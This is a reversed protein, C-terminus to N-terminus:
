VNKRVIRGTTVAPRFSGNEGYRPAGASGYMLGLASRVIHLGHVMLHRTAENLESLAERLSRIRELCERAESRFAAPFLGLFESARQNEGGTRIGTSVALSNRSEMVVMMEALLTEKGRLNNEIDEVCSRAVARQDSQLIEILRSLLAEERHFVDLWRAAVSDDLVAL